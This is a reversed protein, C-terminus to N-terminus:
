KKGRKKSAAQSYAGLMAKVVRWVEVRDLSYKNAYDSCVAYDANVGGWGNGKLALNFVEWIM